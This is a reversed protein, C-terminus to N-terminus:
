VTTKLKGRRYAEIAMLGMKPYVNQHNKVKFAKAIEATTMEGQLWLLFKRLQPETYKM